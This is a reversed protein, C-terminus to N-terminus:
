ENKENKIREGTHSVREGTHSYREKTKHRM